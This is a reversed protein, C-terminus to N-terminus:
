KEAAAGTLDKKLAEAIGREIVPYIVSDWTDGFHNSLVNLTSPDDTEIVFFVKVPSSGAVEFRKLTKCKKLFVKARKKLWESREYYIEKRSVDEKADLVVVYWM